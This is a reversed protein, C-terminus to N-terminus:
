RRTAADPIKNYEIHPARAVIRVKAGEEHLLIRLISRPRAAASSRSRRGRSGRSRRPARRQPQRPRVPAGRLGRAYARVLLHRGGARRRPRPCARRERADNHLQGGPRRARHRESGRREARLAEPVLECLCPVHGAVRAAGPRCLPHRQARVLGQAHIRTGARVPQLRLRRIEAGHEQAHAGVLDDDAQRLHSLRHRASWSAGGALSRPARSRHHCRRLDTDNKTESTGSRSPRGAHDANQPSLCRM